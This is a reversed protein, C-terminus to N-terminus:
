MSGGHGQADKAKVRRGRQEQNGISANRICASDITRRAHKNIAKVLNWSDPFLVVCVNVGCGSSLTGTGVGGSVWDSDAWRM